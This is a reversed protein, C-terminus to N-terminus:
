KKKGLMQGETCRLAYGCISKKSVKMWRRCVYNQLQVHLFFSQASRRKNDVDKKKIRRGQRRRRSKKWAYWGDRGAVVEIVHALPCFGRSHNEYSTPVMDRVQLDKKEHEGEETRFTYSRIM